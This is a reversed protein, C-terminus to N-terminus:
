GGDALEPVIKLLFPYPDVELGLRLPRSKGGGDGKQQVKLGWVRNQEPTIRVARRWCTSAAPRLAEGHWGGVIKVIRLYGEFVSGTVDGRESKSSENGVGDCCFNRGLRGQFCSKAQEVSGLTVSGFFLNPFRHLFDEFLPLNLSLVDKDDGLEPIGIM